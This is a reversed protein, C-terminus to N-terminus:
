GRGDAPLAPSIVWLVRTVRREEPSRFSHRSSPAFTFADGRRLATVEGDVTIELRGDLVFVFEVDAPLTYTEGGSGGGPDVESLIAQVRREGHPTLLYERMGAGGFTIAPYSGRRVVEGGPAAEFLSGPPLGLTQCLRLLAAVSANARDRELKSLFGKTLGAGEAVEALTRRQAERASRLRAGIAPRDDDDVRAV